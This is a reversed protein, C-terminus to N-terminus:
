IAVRVMGKVLGPQGTVQAFFDVSQLLAESGETVHFVDFAYRSRVRKASVVNYQDPRFEDGPDADPHLVVILDIDGPEAKSSVFSGDVILYAVLGSDRAEAAFASLRTGLTVRWDTGQFQGFRGLVEGLSADHIGAPLFGNADFPPIPM